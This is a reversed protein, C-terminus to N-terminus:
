TLSDVDPLGALHAQVAEDTWFQGLLAQEAVAVGRVAALNADGVEEADGGAGALAAYGDILDKLAADAGKAILAPKVRDFATTAVVEAVSGAKAFDGAQWAEWSKALQIRIDHLQSLRLLDATTVDTRSPDANRAATTWLSLGYNYMSLVEATLPALEDATTTSESFAAVAADVAREADEAAAADRVKFLPYADEFGEAFRAFYEAAKAINGDKLASGTIRLDARVIRLAAVDDFLPSLRPGQVSLAIAEDYRAALEESLAQLDTFNPADEALGEEIAVELDAELKLYMSLSRVNVYVEIGNWAADYAELADRAAELDGAALAGTLADIKPRAVAVLDAELSDTPTAPTATAPTAAEPTTAAAGSGGTNATSQASAETSDSFCSSCLLAILAAGAVGIGTGERRSRLGFGTGILSRVLM